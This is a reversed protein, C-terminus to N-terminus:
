PECEAGNIILEEIRCPDVNWKVHTPFGAGGLGVVGSSRIASVLDERSGVVPPTIGECPTMEGDSEITVALCKTGSVHPFEAVKTVKGSVSAHCPVSFSGSAEAIVSGVQVYDGVKVTPTSPSGIHMAMPITVSKVDTLRAAPCGETSKRHPVRIGNLFFSM